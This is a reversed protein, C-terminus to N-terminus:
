QDGGVLSGGLLCTNNTYCLSFLHNLNLLMDTNAQIQVRIEPVLLLLEVM